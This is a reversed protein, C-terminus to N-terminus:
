DIYNHQCGHKDIVLDGSKNPYKNMNQQNNIGIDISLIWIRKIFKVM